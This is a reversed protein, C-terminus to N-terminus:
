YKDYPILNNEDSVYYDDHDNDHLIYLVPCASSFVMCVEVAIKKKTDIAWEGIKFM